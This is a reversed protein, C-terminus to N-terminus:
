RWIERSEHASKGLRRRANGRRGTSGLLLWLERDPRCRELLRKRSLKLQFAAGGVSPASRLVAVVRAREQM